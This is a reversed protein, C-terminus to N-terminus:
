FDGHQSDDGLADKAVDIAETLEATEGGGEIRARSRDELVVDGPM